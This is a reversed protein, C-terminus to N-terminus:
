KGANKYVSRFTRIGCGFDFSGKIEVGEVEWGDRATIRPTTQGQLYGTVFAPSKKSDLLYWADVSNTDLRPQIIPTMSSIVRPMTGAATTANFTAFLDEVDTELISPAIIFNPIQNMPTVGDLDLMSRLLKRGKAIQTKDPKGGSTATYNIGSRFLPNGDALNRGDTFMAWFMDLMTSKFAAGQRVQLDGLADLDDDILARRTIQMGMLMNVLNWTEGGETVKGYKLEGGEPTVIPKTAGSLQLESVTKFNPISPRRLAFADFDLEETSYGAHFNKEAVNSLLLTFDSTGMMRTHSQMALDFIRSASLGKVDVGASRLLEAALDVMRMNAFERGADTLAVCGAARHALGNVMADFRKDTEGEGMQFAGRIGGVNKVDDEAHMKILAVRVSNIDKTPDNLFEAIRTEDIKLAKAAERIDAQRASEQRAGEALAEARAQEDAVQRAQGDVAPTKVPDTAPATKQGEDNRGEMEGEQPTQQDGAPPIGQNRTAITTPITMVAGDARVGSTPDAGLGVLSGERPELDRAIWVDLGRDGAGKQVEWEYVIYGLSTEELIGTRIDNVTDEHRKATSLRVRVLLEGNEVRATNPLIRGITKQVELARHDEFFPGGRKLWRDLRLARESIELEEWYYEDKWWDYRLVRSGVGFSVDIENTKEDFSEKVFRLEARTYLPKGERMLVEHNVPDPKTEAM